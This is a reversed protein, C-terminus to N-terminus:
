NKLQAMNQEIVLSIKDISELLGSMIKAVSKIQQAMNDIQGNM